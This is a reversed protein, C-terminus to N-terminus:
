ATEPIMPKTNYKLLIIMACVKAFRVIVITMALRELRFEATTKSAYLLIIFLGIFTLSVIWYNILERKNSVGSIMQHLIVHVIQLSGLITFFLILERTLYDDFKKAFLISVLEGGIIQFIFIACIAILAISSFLKKFNIEEGSTIKPYIVYGVASGVMTLSITFIFSVGTFIGLLEQDYVIPILLKDIGGSILATSNILWFTLGFKLYNKVEYPADASSPSQLIVVAMYASFVALSIIWACYIHEIEITISLIIALALFILLVIKWGGTFLQAFIFRSKLRFISALYLNISGFAIGCFIFILKFLSLDYVLGIVPTVIASFLLLIGLSSVHVVRNSNPSDHFVKIYSYDLGFIALTAGILFIQKLLAFEGFDNIALERGMFITVALSSLMSIVMIFLTASVNKFM